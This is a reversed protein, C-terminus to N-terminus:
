YKISKSIKHTHKLVNYIKHVKIAIPKNKIPNSSNGLEMHARLVKHKEHCGVQGCYKAKAKSTHLCILGVKLWVCKKIHTCQDLLELLYM